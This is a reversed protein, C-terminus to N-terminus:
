ADPREGIRADDGEGVPIKVYETKTERCQPSRARHDAALAHGMTREVWDLVDQDDKRDPVWVTAEEAMCGCKYIVNM